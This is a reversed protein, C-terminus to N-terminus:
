YNVALKVIELVLTSGYKAVETPFLESSVKTFFSYYVPHDIGVLMVIFLYLAIIRIFINFDCSDQVHM